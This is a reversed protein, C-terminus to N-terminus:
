GYKRKWENKRASFDLYHEGEKKVPMPPVVKKATSKKKVVLVSRVSKKSKVPKVGGPKVKKPEESPTNIQKYTDEYKNLARQPSLELSDLLEKDFRVGIPNTKPM